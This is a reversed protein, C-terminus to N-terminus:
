GRRPSRRNDIREPVANKEGRVAKRSRLSRIHSETASTGEQNSQDTVAENINRLKRRFKRNENKLGAWPKMKKLARIFAIRTALLYDPDDGDRRQALGVFTNGRCILTVSCLTDLFYAASIYVESPHVKVPKHSKWAEKLMEAFPSNVADSNSFETALTRMTM